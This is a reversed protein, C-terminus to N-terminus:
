RLVIGRIEDAFTDVSPWDTYDICTKPDTPGGTILMIFRILQRDSWRYLPYNLRGAFVATAVPRLALRAIIKKLYPNTEATRKEPKRATLNVSALALPPTAPHSRVAALFQEAQKLHRGYRVAAVVVLLAAGAIAQAVAPQEALDLTDAALGDDQLREALRAAIRRAHGDRSAFCVRVLGDRPRPHAPAPPPDPDSLDTM